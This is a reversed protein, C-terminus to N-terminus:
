SSNNEGTIVLRKGLKMHPLYQSQITATLAPIFAIDWIEDYSTIDAPVGDSVTVTHGASTLQAQLNTTAATTDNGFSGATSAGNVVLVNAASAVSFAMAAALTLAARLLFSRQLQM